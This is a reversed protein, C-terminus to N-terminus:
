KRKKVRRGRAVQSLVELDLLDRKRGASKKAKIVDKLNLLFIRERGYYDRKKRKWAKEFSVGGIGTLIDIRNPEVGIQYVTTPNRLDGITLDRLPAGFRRLAEYVKDANDSDAQVWVDIDKTYRPETHFIVAYAGVILYRAQVSNLLHFLEEFDKNVRM